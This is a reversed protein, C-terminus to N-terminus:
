KPVSVIECELTGFVVADKCEYTVNGTNNGQCRTGNKIACVDKDTIDTYDWYGDRCDTGPQFLRDRDDEYCNCRCVDHVDALPKPRLAAQFLSPKSFNMAAVVATGVLALGIVSYAVKHNKQM